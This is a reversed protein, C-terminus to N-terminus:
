LKKPDIGISVLLSYNLTYFKETGAKRERLVGAQVLRSFHHSMTPQALQLSAACDSVITSGSEECHDEALKRVISLRTDDALSKLVTTTDAKM